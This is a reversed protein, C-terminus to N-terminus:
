RLFMKGFMRGLGKNVVRRAARRPSGLAQVDGLTRAAKYLSRRLRYLKM